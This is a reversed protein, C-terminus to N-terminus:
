ALTQHDSYIIYLYYSIIIVQLTEFKMIVDFNVQCPTCFQTIPSWHMDFSEGKKHIDVLYQVFEAFTPWRPNKPVIKKGQGKM